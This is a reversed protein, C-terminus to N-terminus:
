CTFIFDLWAAAESIMLALIVKQALFLVVQCVYIYTTRLLKM